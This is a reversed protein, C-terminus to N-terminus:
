FREFDDAELATQSSKQEAPQQNRGGHGSGNGNGNGSYRQSQAHQAEGQRGMGSTGGGAGQGADRNKEYTTIATPEKHASRSSNDPNSGAAARATSSSKQASSQEELQLHESSVTFYSITNELEEAQGALEEAISAMEESASANQQIVQDLQSLASNVQEAGSSQERSAASIEQVLDATKRINPVLLDLKERANEAVSVTSSSLDSIEGAADKSRAALKGVESAVVAFGKGHEGARAAEISANLSLMNTQRAIEEIITIKEAIQKMVDVAEMVAKGSEEADQSAQTAIKETEAANDANQTINSSMQEMSSSVEEVSSAQESAGQSIQEATASMQQSGSTVQASANKVDSVTGKLNEVMTRLAKILDGVEDRRNISISANLNGQSVEHAFGVSRKLPVTISRSFLVFLVLTLLFAIVGVLLVNNRIAVVPALFEENSITLIVSWGSLDVPAFGATKKVGEFVYEEVGAENNLTREAIREMGPLEKVNASFVLDQNKHAIALGNSDTLFAYGTEGIQTDLALENLLELQFIITVSGVVEGSSSFVPAAIPVFPQNTVKNRATAGVNVEGRMAKRFYGRDDIVEGIYAPDSAARIIGQNDAAFVVQYDDSFSAMKMLRAYESNLTDIANGGSQQEGGSSGSFADIVASDVSLQEAIKKEAILVENLGDAIETSLYALTDQESSVLGETATNVALYGVASLSIFLILAGIAILKGGIKMRIM